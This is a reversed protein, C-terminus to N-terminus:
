CGAGRASLRGFIRALDPKSESAVAQQPAEFSGSQSSLRAGVSAVATRPASAVVEDKREIVGAGDINERLSEVVEEPKDMLNCAEEAVIQFTETATAAFIETAMARARAADVGVSALAEAMSDRLPNAKKPYFNKAVGAVVISARDLFVDRVDAIAAATAVRSESEISARIEHALESEEVHSAYIRAHVGSLTELVGATAMSRILSAGYQESEFTSRIAQPRDQDALSVSAAAVGQVLINWTPNEGPTFVTQIQDASASALFDKDAVPITKAMFDDEESDSDLAPEGANENDNDANENSLDLDGEGSEPPLVDPDQADLDSETNDILGTGTSDEGEGEEIDKIFEQVLSDLDSFDWEADAPLDVLAVGAFEDHEGEPSEEGESDAPLETPFEEGEDEGEQNDEYTEIAEGVENDDFALAIRTVAGTAILQEISATAESDLASGDQNWYQSYVGTEDYGSAGYADAEALAENIYAIMQELEEKDDSHKPNNAYQELTVLAGEVVDRPVERKHRGCWNSSLAYVDDMGVHWHILHEDLYDSAEMDSPPLVHPFAISEHEAVVDEVSAFSKKFSDSLNKHGFDQFTKGTDTNYAQLEWDYPTFDAVEGTKLNKIKYMGYQMGQKHTPNGENNFANSVCTFPVGCYQQGRKKCAEATLTVTSGNRFRASPVLLGATAAKRKGIVETGLDEPKHGQERAIEQTDVNGAPTEKGPKAPEVAAAALRSEFLSIGRDLSASAINNRKMSNQEKDHASEPMMTKNTGCGLAFTKRTATVATKTPYNM